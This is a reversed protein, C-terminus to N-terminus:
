KGGEPFYRDTFPCGRLPLWGPLRYYHNKIRTLMRERYVPYKFGQAHIVNFYYTEGPELKCAGTTGSTVTWVLDQGKGSINCAANM